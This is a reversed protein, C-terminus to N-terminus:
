EISPNPVNSRPICDKNEIEFFVKMRSRITGTITNTQPLNAKLKVPIPAAGVFKWQFGSM